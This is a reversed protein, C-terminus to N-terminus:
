IFPPAEKPLPMWHTAFRMPTHDWCVCIHYGDYDQHHEPLWTCVTMIPYAVGGGINISYGALFDSGDQPATEIPKWQSEM